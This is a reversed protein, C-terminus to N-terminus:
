FTKTGILCTGFPVKKLLMRHGKKELLMQEITKEGFLM